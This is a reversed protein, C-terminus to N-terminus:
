AFFKIVYADTRLMSRKRKQLLKEFKIPKRYYLLALLVQKKRWKLIMQKGLWRDLGLTLLHFRQLKKNTRCSNYFVDFVKNLPKQFQMLAKRYKLISDCSSSQVLAKWMDGNIHANMGMFYYQFSNCNTHEYYRQWSFGTPQYQKFKAAASLFYVMFSDRFCGLFSAAPNLQHNEYEEAALTTKFYLEGFYRSIDQQKSIALLSDKYISGPQAATFTISFLLAAFLVAKM